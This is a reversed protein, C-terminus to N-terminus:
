TASLRAILAALEDQMKEVSWHIRDGHGPLVWDFSLSRLRALSRIQEQWNWWCYDRSAGLGEGPGNWWLHDGTFLFKERYHLVIHGATHGPTPVITFDPSFSIADDGDIVIEAHPQAALELRHIIRKAGFRQAYKAADAVDDRHTLFIYRLGGRAEMKKALPELYRPSDVLWNGEPHEIFYSHGGFSKESTFGNYFVGDEIPEPFQERVESLGAHDATGIAGTPCTLLARLANRHEEFTDPQQRVFSHDGSAGFIQPALQRCVDCDICRENVFFDGSINEVHAKARSAM